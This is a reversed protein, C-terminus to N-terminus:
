KKLRKKFLLNTKADDTTFEPAIEKDNKDTLSVTDVYKDCMDYWSVWLDKNPTVTYAGSEYFSLDLNSKNEEIYKKVDSPSTGVVTYHEKGWAVTYVKVRKM